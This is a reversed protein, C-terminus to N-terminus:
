TIPKCERMIVARRRFFGPNNDDRECERSLDHAPPNVSVTSQVRMCVQEANDRCIRSKSVVAASPTFVKALTTAALILHTYERTHM